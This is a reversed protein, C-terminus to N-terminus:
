KDLYIKCAKIVYYLFRAAFIAFIIHLSYQIILFLMSMM